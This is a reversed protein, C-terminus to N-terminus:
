SIMGSSEVIPTIRVEAVEPDSHGLSNVAIGASFDLYERGDEDWVTCGEGRALVVDPRAYVPLVYHEAKKITAKSAEGLQPSPIPHSVNKYTASPAKPLAYAPKPASQNRLQSCFHLDLRRSYRVESQIEAASSSILRQASVRSTRLRALRSTSRLM